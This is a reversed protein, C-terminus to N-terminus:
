DYTREEEAVRDRWVQVLEARLDPEREAFVGDIMVALFLIQDLAEQKRRERIPRAALEWEVISRVLASVSLGRQEALAKIGAHETPTVRFSFLTDFSM